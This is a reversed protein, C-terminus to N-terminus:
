YLTIRIRRRKVVMDNMCKGGIRADRIMWEEDFVWIVIDVVRVLWGFVGDM